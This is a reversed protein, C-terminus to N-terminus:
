EDNGAPDADSQTPETGDTPNTDGEPSQNNEGSTDTGPTSTNGENESGTTGSNSTNGGNESGTTGSDSTNGENESGTTGSNSPDENDGPLGTEPDTPATPETPETAVEDGFCITDTIVSNVNPRFWSVTWSLTCEQTTEIGIEETYGNEHNLIVVGQVEGNLLITVYVVSKRQLDDRKGAHEVKIRHPTGPVLIPNETGADITVAVEPNSALTIVNNTNDVSDKFWAWTTGALCSMCLLIGCISVAMVQHLNKETIKKKEPNGFVDKMGM